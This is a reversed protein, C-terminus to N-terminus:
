KELVADLLGRKAKSYACLFQVVINKRRLREFQTIQDDDDFTWDPYNGSISNKINYLTSRCTLNKMGLLDLYRIFESPTYFMLRPDIKGENAARMIYGYDAPTRFVKKNRLEALARAFSRDTEDLGDTVAAYGILEVQPCLELMGLFKELASDEIRLIIEKM